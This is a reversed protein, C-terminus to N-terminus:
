TSLARSRGDQRVNRNRAKVASSEMVHSDSSDRSHNRRHSTDCAISAVVPDLIDWYVSYGEGMMSYPVCHSRTCQWNHLVWNARRRPRTGTSLYARRRHFGM